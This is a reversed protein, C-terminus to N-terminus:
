RGFESVVVGDVSQKLDQLLKASYNPNVPINRHRQFDIIAEQTRRGLVGDIEGTSYNLRQL